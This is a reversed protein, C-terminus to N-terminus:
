LALLARVGEEDGGDCLQGRHLSVWSSATHVQTQLQCRGLAVMLQESLLALHSSVNPFCFLFRFIVLNWRIVSLVQLLFLIQVLLPIVEPSGPLFLYVALQASLVPLFALLSCCTCKLSISVSSGPLLEPINVLYQAKVWLYERLAFACM